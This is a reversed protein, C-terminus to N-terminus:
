ELGEPDGRPDPDGPVFDRPCSIVGADIAAAVVRAFLVKEALETMGALRELRGVVGPSFHERIWELSAERDAMVLALMELEASEPGQGLEILTRDAM